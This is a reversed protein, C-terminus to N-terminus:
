VVVCGTTPRVQLHPPVRSVSPRSFTIRPNVGWDELTWQVLNSFNDKKPFFEFYYYM